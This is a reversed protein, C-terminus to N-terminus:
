TSEAIIGYPNDELCMQIQNPLKNFVQKSLLNTTCGTDLLFQALHGEVKGPLFYSAKCVKELTYIRVEETPKLSKKHPWM